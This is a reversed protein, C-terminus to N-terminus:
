RPRPVHAPLAPSPAYFPAYLDAADGIWARLQVLNLDPKWDATPRHGLGLGARGPLGKIGLATGALKLSWRNQPVRRWVRQDVGYHNAKIQDQAVERLIPLVSAHMATQCFCAGINVFPHWRREKVNYYRQLGDGAIQAKPKGMLELLTALHRPSYYDDHEAFIAWETTIHPLAALLNRCFSEAPRCGLERTRLIHQQGMTLRAPVDGDDIVVWHAGTVDVTQARMFSELFAIGIPQDATVTVLTVDTLAIM